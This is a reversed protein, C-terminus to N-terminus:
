ELVEYNYLLLKEAYLNLFDRMHYNPQMDLVQKVILNENEVCENGVQAMEDDDDQILFSPKKPKFDDQLFVSPITQNKLELIQQDSEFFIKM